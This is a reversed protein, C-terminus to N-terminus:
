SPPSEDPWHGHEDFYRRVEEDDERDHRGTAIFYVIMVIVVVAGALALISWLTEAM